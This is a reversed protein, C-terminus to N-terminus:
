VLDLLCNVRLFDLVLLPFSFIDERSLGLCDLIHDPSAQQTKCKTCLAFTKRGECFSLSKIHGSKLRSIATQSARGWKLLFSCGRHKSEYWHHNPPTRWEKLIESKVKSQHESYTLTSSIPPSDNCGEKAQLDAQENGFINFHSPIWQFHVDHFESIQTLKQLISVGAKDGVTIWNYFHQHVEFIISSGSTKSTKNM